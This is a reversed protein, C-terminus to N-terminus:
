TSEPFIQQLVPPATPPLPPLPLPPVPTVAPAPLVAPIVVRGAMPGGVPIGPGRPPLDVGQASAAPAAAMGIAAVVVLAAGLRAMHKRFM